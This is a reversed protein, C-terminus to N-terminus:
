KTPHSASSKRSSGSTKADASGGRASGPDAATIEVEGIVFEVDELRTQSGSLWGAFWVLATVAKMSGSQAEHLLQPLTSNTENELTILQRNTLKTSDLAGIDKGGIRISTVQAM